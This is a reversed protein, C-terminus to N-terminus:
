GNDTTDVHIDEQDRLIEKNLNLTFIDDDVILIKYRKSNEKIKQINSFSSNIFSQQM